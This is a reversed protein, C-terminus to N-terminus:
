LKTLKLSAAKADLNKKISLLITSYSLNIKTIVEKETIKNNQVSESFYETVDVNKIFENSIIGNLETIMSKVLNLFNKLKVREEQLVDEVGKKKKPSPVCKIWLQFLLSAWSLPESTFFVIEELNSRNLLKGKLNGVLHSQITQLLKTENELTEVLHNRNHQDHDENREIEDKVRLLSKTIRFLDVAFQWMTQQIQPFDTTVQGILVRLQDLNAGLNDARNKICDLFIVPILSRLKIWQRREQQTRSLFNASTFSKRLPDYFPSTIGEPNWNLLITYDENERLKDTDEDSVFRPNKFALFGELELISNDNKKMESLLHEVRSISLTQSQDLRKKFEVFERIKSYSGNQFAKIAYELTQTTNELHFAEIEMYLHHFFNSYLSISEDMVLYSLSDLLIHKVQLEEFLDLAPKIGGIQLYLRLLLIKLQFGHKSMKLGDELLVIAELIYSQNNERRSLHVLCHCALLILSDGVAIETEEKKETEYIKSSRQYENKLQKIFDRLQESPLNHVLNLKTQIQFLNIIRPIREKEALDHPLTKSIKEFLIKAEETQNYHKLYASIDGSCMTRNGFRKVFSVLNDTMREKLERKGENILLHDLELEALFPGRIPKDTSKEQLKRFLTRSREDFQSFWNSDRRLLNMGCDLYGCIHSWDDANFNVILNEFVELGEEFRKAKQLLLSKYKLREEEVKFFKEAKDLYDLLKEYNEQSELTQVILQFSEYSDIKSENFDKDLTKESITLQLDGKQGPKAQLIMSQIYWLHYKAGGFQKMLKLSFEKSKAFDGRRVYSQWVGELHFESKPLKASASEFIQTIKDLKGLSKYTTQMTNLVTPDTPSQSCLQDLISEAEEQKGLKETAVAKLAMITQSFSDVKKCVIGNCLKLALKYNRSQFLADWIPQVRREEM